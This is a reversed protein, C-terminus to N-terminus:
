CNPFFSVPDLSRIWDLNDDFCKKAKKKLKDQSERKKEAEEKACEESRKKLYNYIGEDLLSEAAKSLYKFKKPLKIYKTIPKFIESFSLSIMVNLVDNLVNISVENCPYNLVSFCTKFHKLIFSKILSHYPSCAPFHLSCIYMLLAPKILFHIIIIIIIIIVFVRLSPPLVAKELFQFAKVNFPFILM